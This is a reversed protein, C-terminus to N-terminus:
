ILGLDLLRVQKMGWGRVIKSILSTCNSGLLTPGFPSATHWRGRHRRVLSRFLFLSHPPCAQGTGLQSNELDEVSCIQSFCREMRLCGTGFPQSTISRSCPTGTYKLMLSRTACYLWGPAFPSFLSGRDERRLGMFDFFPCGVSKPNTFM